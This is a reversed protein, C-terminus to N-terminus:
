PEPESRLIVVRFKERCQLNMLVFILIKGVQLIGISRYRSSYSRVKRPRRLVTVAKRSHMARNMPYSM